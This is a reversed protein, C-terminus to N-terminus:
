LLIEFRAGFTSAKSYSISGQHLEIIKKTISLGLGSGKRATSKERSYPSFLRPIIEEAVGPGQDEICIRIKENMLDLSVTIIGATPSYEIANDLLNFVASKILEPLMKRELFIFNDTLTDAVKLRITVSRGKAKLAVLEIAETIIELINEPRMPINSLSEIQSLLLLDEVVKILHEVETLADAKKEQSFDKQSLSNYIITLPTKLQHSVNQIFEGREKLLVHVVQERHRSNEDRWFWGLLIVFALIEWFYRTLDRQYSLENLAKTSLRTVLYWRYSSRPLPITTFFFLDGAFEFYGHGAPSALLKKQLGENVTTKDVTYKELSLEPYSVVYYGHHNVLIKEDIKDREEFKERFLQFVRAGDLNIILIANQDENLKILKSVRITARIPNEIQGNIINPEM